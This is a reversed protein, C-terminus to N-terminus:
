GKRSLETVFTVQHKKAAPLFYNVHIAAAILALGSREPNSCLMSIETHWHWTDSFYDSCISGSQLLDPTKVLFTGIPEQTMTSGAPVM